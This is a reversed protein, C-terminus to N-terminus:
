NLLFQTSLDWDVHDVSYSINPPVETWQQWNVTFESLREKEEKWCYQHCTQENIIKNVDLDKIVEYFSTALNNNSINVIYIINKDKAKYFSKNERWLSISFWYFVKLWEKTTLDLETVWDSWGLGSTFYVQSLRINDTELKEKLIWVIYEQDSNTIYTDYVWYRVDKNNVKQLVIYLFELASLEELSVFEPDKKLSVLAEKYKDPDSNFLKYLLPYQEKFLAIQKERNELAELFEQKRLEKCETAGPIYEWIKPNNKYKSLHEQTKKHWEGCCSASLLFVGILVTKIDFVYSRIHWIDFIYEKLKIKDM